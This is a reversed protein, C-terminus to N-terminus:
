SSSIRLREITEQIRKKEVGQINILEGGSSRHYELITGILHSVVGSCLYSDIARIYKETIIVTPIENYVRVQYLIQDLDTTIGRHKECLGNTLIVKEDISLDPWGKQRFRDYIEEYGGKNIALRNIERVLAPELYGPNEIALDYMSEPSKIMEPYLLSLDYLIVIKEDISLHEWGQIKLKKNIDDICGENFFLDFFLKALIAPFHHGTSVNRVLETMTQSDLTDSYVCWTKILYKILAVKNSARLSQWYHFLGSERHDLLMTFIKKGKEQGFLVKDTYNSTLRFFIRRFRGTKLYSAGSRIKSGVSVGPPAQKSDITEFLDPTHLPFNHIAFQSM